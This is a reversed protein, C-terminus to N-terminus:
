KEHRMVDNDTATRRLWDLKADLRTLLKKRSACEGVRVAVGYQEPTGMSEM